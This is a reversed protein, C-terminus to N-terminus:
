SDWVLFGSPIPHKFDIAHARLIVVDANRSSAGPFITGFSIGTFATGQAQADKAREWQVRTLQWPEKYGMLITDKTARRKTTTKKKRKKKKRGPIAPHQPSDTICDDSDCTQLYRICRGTSSKEVCTLLDGKLELRELVM